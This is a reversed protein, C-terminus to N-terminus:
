SASDSEMARRGPEEQSKKTTKLSALLLKRVTAPDTHAFFEAIEKIDAIFQPTEEL